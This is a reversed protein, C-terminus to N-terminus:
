KPPKYTFQPKKQTIAAQKNENMWLLKIPAGSQLKDPHFSWFRMKKGNKDAVESETLRQSGVWLVPSMARIPMPSALSVIIEVANKVTAMPHDFHQPARPKYQAARITVDTIEPIEWNPGQTPEISPAQDFSM